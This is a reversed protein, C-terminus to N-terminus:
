KWPMVPVWARLERGKYIIGQIRQAVAEAQPQTMRTEVIASPADGEPIMRINDVVMIRSLAERLGEESAGDPLNGIMIRTM